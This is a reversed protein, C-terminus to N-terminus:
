SKMCIWPSVKIYIYHMFLTFGGGGKDMESLPIKESRVYLLVADGAHIKNMSTNMHDCQYFSRSELVIRNGENM